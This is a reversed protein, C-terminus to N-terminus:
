PASPERWALTAVIPLHDSEGHASSVHMDLATFADSYFLMDIRVGRSPMPLNFMYRATSPYTHGFGWGVARHADTFHAELRRYVDSLPTSNFDGAIIIPDTRGLADALLLAALDNRRDVTNQVARGLAKGKNLMPMIDRSSIPHSNYLVFSHADVHVRVVQLRQQSSNLVSSYVSTLPYRSLVGLRNDLDWIHYPYVEGVEQVLLRSMPESLEQVAVVDPSGAALLVRATAASTSGEYVNFSMVTFPPPDAAVAVPSAPWFLHGYLTIFILLPPLMSAWVAHRRALLGAPLAVAVPWFLHPGAFHILALWWLGDGLWRYLVFWLM